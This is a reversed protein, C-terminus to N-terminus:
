YMRLLTGNLTYVDQTYIDVALFVLLFNAHTVALIFVFFSTRFSIIVCAYRMMLEFVDWRINPIEVDKATREQWFLFFNFHNIYPIM